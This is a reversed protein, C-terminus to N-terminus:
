HLYIGNGANIQGASTFNISYLAPVQYQGPLFGGGGSVPGLTLTAAGVPVSSQVLYGYISDGNTTVYTPASNLTISYNTVGIVTYPYFPSANSSVLSAASVATVFRVDYSDNPAYPNNHAIVIPYLTNIGNTTSVFITTTVNTTLIANGTGQAWWDQFLSGSKDSTVNLYQFIPTSGNYGQKSVVYFNTTGLTTQVPTWASYGAPPPAIQAQSTEGALFALGIAFSLIKNLKM